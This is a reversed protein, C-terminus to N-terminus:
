VLRKFSVNELWKLLNITVSLNTVAVEYPMEYFLRTGNIAALHYIFDFSRPAEIDAPIPENLNVKCFQIREQQILGEFEIDTDGSSKFFNDFITVSDGLDHHYKALHYGIFGAGGTILVNM